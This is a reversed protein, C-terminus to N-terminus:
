RRKRLVAVGSAAGLPGDEKAEQVPAAKRLPPLLLSALSGTRGTGWKDRKDRRDRAIRFEENRPSGM